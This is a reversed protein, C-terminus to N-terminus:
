GRSRKSNLELLKELIQENTLDHPWGYVGFIAESLKKTGLDLM